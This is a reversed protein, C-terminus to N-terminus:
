GLWRNCSNHQCNPKRYAAKGTVNVIEGTEAFRWMARVLSAIESDTLIEFVEGWSFQAKFWREM